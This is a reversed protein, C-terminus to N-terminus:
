ENTTKNNEYEAKEVRLGIELVKPLDKMRMGHRIEVTYTGKEPFGVAQKYPVTIDFVNSIGSGLWKGKDNALVCNLTDYQSKQSPSTTKIFLWLNQYLYHQSNRVNVKLNYPIETKEIPFKFKAVHELNWVGNPIEVNSEYIKKSDCSFIIIGTFTLLLIRRM